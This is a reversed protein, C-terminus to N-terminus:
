SNQYMYSDGMGLATQLSQIMAWLFLVLTQSSDKKKKNISRIQLCQLKTKYLCSKLASLIRSSPESPAPSTVWSNCVSGVEALSGFETQLTLMLCNVVAQLELEQSKVGKESRQSFVSLCLHVRWLFVLMWM